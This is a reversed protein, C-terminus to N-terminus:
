RPARTGRAQYAIPVGTVNMLLFPGMGIGFVRKATEDITPINAVGEELLRTAENLWPVFFRNVVFGPSDASHIATKGTAEAFAWSRELTAASTQPGPIVELLRNQAPHFFYHLGVIREPRAAGEAVAAVKFSSTNTGLVCDGQVHKELEAFLGRKIDLDEFVAEVILDCGALDAHTTTGQIRGLIQDPQGERFIGREVGKQLMKRIAGLGREVFEDKLDMLVVDLGSQATKQAIGAGMTGAGVVGIKKPAAM